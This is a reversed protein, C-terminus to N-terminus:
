KILLKWIDIFFVYHWQADGEIQDKYLIDISALDHKKNGFMISAGITSFIDEQNYERGIIFKVEPTIRIYQTPWLDLIGQEITLEIKQNDHPNPVIAEGGWSHKHSTHYPLILEFNIGTKPFFSAEGRKYRWPMDIYLGLYFFDDVQESQYLGSSSESDSWIKGVGIDFDSTFIDRSFKVSLGGFLREGDWEGGNLIQDGGDCTGVIFMGFLFKKSSNNDLRELKIPRFRAKTWYFWSSMENQAHFSDYSGGGITLDLSNKRAESSWANDILLFFVLLSLILINKYYRDLFIM